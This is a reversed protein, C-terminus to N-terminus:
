TSRKDLGLLRGLTGTDLHAEVLDALREITAERLAGYDAAQPRDLGAWGLLAACADPADFLGHLYTGLVQGDASTPGDPGDDL